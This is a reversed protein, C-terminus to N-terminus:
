QALCAKAVPTRLLHGNQYRPLLPTENDPLCLWLWGPMPSASPPHAIWLPMMCATEGLSFSM